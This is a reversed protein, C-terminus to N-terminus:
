SQEASSMEAQRQQEPAAASTQQELAFRLRQEEADLDFLPYGEEKRLQEDLYSAWLAGGLPVAYFLNPFARTILCGALYVILAAANLRVSRKTSGLIGCVISAALCLLYFREGRGGGLAIFLALLAYLVGLCIFIFCWHNIKDAYMKRVRLAAFHERRADDILSAM